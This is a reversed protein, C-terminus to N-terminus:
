KQWAWLWARCQECIEHHARMHAAALEVADMREMLERRPVLDHQAAQLAQSAEVLRAYLTWSIECRGETSSTTPM